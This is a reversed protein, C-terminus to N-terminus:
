WLCHAVPLATYDLVPGTVIQKQCVIVPFPARQGKKGGGAPITFFLNYKGFTKPILIRKLKAYFIALFLCLSLPIMAVLCVVVCLTLQSM